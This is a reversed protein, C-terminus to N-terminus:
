KTKWKFFIAVGVKKEFIPKEYLFFDDEGNPLSMHSFHPDVGLGVM